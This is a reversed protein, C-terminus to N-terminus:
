AIWQVVEETLDDFLLLRLRRNKLLLNWFPAQILVTYVDTRIALYLTREPEQDALIDHYLIFQGLAQELDTMRSPSAFSKVEVAIKRKAKEAIIFREAGLDVFLNVKTDPLNITLPDHTITWGDKELARRVHEHYLDKAAM